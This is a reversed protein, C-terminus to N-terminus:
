KSMSLALYLANEYDLFAANLDPIRIRSQAMLVLCTIMWFYDRTKKAEEYAKEGLELARNFDCLAYYCRGMEHLLWSREEAEEITPLLISWHRISLDKEKKFFMMAKDMDKGQLYATGMYGYITAIVEELKKVVEEKYNLVANLLNYCRQLSECYLHEQQETDILNLERTIAQNICMRAETISPLPKSRKIIKTPPKEHLMKMTQKDIYQILTYARHKLKSGVRTHDGAELFISELYCRDEYLSGMLKLTRRNKSVKQKQKFKDKLKVELTKNRSVSNEEVQKELFSLDGNKTLLMRSDGIIKLIATECIYVWLHCRQLRPSLKQSRYYHVLAEELKGMFYYTDAKQLLAAINKPQLKLAENVDKMAKNVNELKLNCYSRHILTMANNKELALSQVQWENHLNPYKNSSKM